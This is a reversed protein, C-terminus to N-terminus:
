FVYFKVEYNVKTHRHLDFGFHCLKDLGAIGLFSHELVKLAQIGNVQQLQM